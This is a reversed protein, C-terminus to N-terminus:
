ADKRIDFNTTLGLNRFTVDGVDTLKTEVSTFLCTLTFQIYKIAKNGPLHCMQVKYWCIERFQM